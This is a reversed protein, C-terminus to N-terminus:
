NHETNIVKLKMEAATLFKSDRCNAIIYNLHYKAPEVEGLHYNVMALRYHTQDQAFEKKDLHSKLFGILEVAFGSTRAGQWRSFLLDAHQNQLETTNSDPNSILKSSIKIAQELDGSEIYKSLDKSNPEVEHKTGPNSKLKNIEDELIQVRNLLDVSQRETLLKEIISLREELSASHSYNSFVFVVLALLRSM